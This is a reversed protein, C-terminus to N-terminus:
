RGALDSYDIEVDHPQCLTSNFSVCRAGRALVKERERERDVILVLAGAFVGDIEVVGNM